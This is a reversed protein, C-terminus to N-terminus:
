MIWNKVNKLYSTLMTVLAVQQYKFCKNKSRHWNKFLFNINCMM